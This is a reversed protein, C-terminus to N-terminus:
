RAWPLPTLNMGWLAGVVTAPMFLVTCITLTKMIDNGRFTTIAEDMAILTDIEGAYHELVASVRELRYALKHYGDSDLLKDMFAEKLSGELEKVAIYHHSWHLLEYRRAVIMNLLDSRNRYRMSQELERLRV